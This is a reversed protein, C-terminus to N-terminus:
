LNKLLAISQVVFLWGSMDRHEPFSVKVLSGQESEVVEARQTVSAGSQVRTRGALFLLSQWDRWHLGHRCGLIRERIKLGVLQQTKYIRDQSLYFLCLSRKFLHRSGCSTPLLHTSFLYGNEALLNHFKLYYKIPKFVFDFSKSSGDKQNLVIQTQLKLNMWHLRCFPMTKKLPSIMASSQKPLLEKTLKRSERTLFCFKGLYKTRLLDKKPGLRNRM